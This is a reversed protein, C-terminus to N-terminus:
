EVVVGAGGRRPDGAAALTGDARREVASAGGFFLNRRRWRTVDYGQAELRDLEAADAGLRLSPQDGSAAP